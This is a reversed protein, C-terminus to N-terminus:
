SYDIQNRYSKPNRRTSGDYNNHDAIRTPSTWTTRHCMKHCTTNTFIMSREKVCDLLYRGSNNIIQGKVMYDWIKLTNMDYGSGIQANFDGVTM